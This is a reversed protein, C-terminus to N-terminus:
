GATSLGPSMSSMIMACPLEDSNIASWWFIIEAAAAIFAKRAHPPDNLGQLISLCPKRAAIHKRGTPAPWGLM